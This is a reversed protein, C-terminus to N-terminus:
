RAPAELREKRGVGPGEPKCGQKDGAEITGTWRRVM